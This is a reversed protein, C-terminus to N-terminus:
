FTKIAEEMENWDNVELPEIEAVPWDLGEKNFWIPNMECDHSAKVDLLPHDGVHCIQQGTCGTFEKVAEFMIPDPKSANLDSASFSFDFYHDIGIKKLDANGNTIVGLSYQEKLDNLCDEVGEFLVVNNRENFFIEFSSSAMQKAESESYGALLGLEIFYLERLTSLQYKLDPNKKLLRDRIQTTEKSGLLSGVGPYNKKIWANTVKEANLITPMIPWLTDDLDFSIVKITM